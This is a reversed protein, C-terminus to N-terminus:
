PQGSRGLIVGYLKAMEEVMREVSFLQEVRQRGHKGMAAATAPHEVLGRIARTLAGVDEPPVLRGEIGDRVAEPVGAIATAVVPREMAMAELISIPLGESSRSPLVYIDIGEYFSKMDAVRGLFQIRNAVGLSQALDYFEAGTRRSGGALRVEVERGQSILESAVRILLDQGKERVVRGACGIVRIPGEAPILREPRWREVVIGYRVLAIRPAAIGLSTAVFDKVAEACAVFRTKSRGVVAARYLWRRLRCATLRSVMWERTDHLHCLHPIPDGALALATVIDSLWLHSHVLDPGLRRIVRRLRWAGQFIHRGLGLPCALNLYHLRDAPVPCRMAPDPPGLVVLDTDFEGGQQLYTVLDLVSREAGGIVGETGLGHLVHVVKPKRTKVLEYESENAQPSKHGSASM